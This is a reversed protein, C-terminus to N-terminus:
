VIMIRETVGFPIGRLIDEAPYLTLVADGGAINGLIVPHM